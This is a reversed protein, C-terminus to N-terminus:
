DGWPRVFLHVTGADDFGMRRYTWKAWEEDAAEVFVLSAGGRRAALVAEAIVANGLGRGGARALAEAETIKAVDGRTRLMCYASVDSGIAAGFARPAVGDAELEGAALVEAGVDHDRHEHMVAESRAGRVEEIGLERVSSADVPRNRIRRQVMIATRRLLWGAASFGPAVREAIAPDLVRVARHPLGAQLADAWSMLAYADVESEVADVRLLNLDVARPFDDRFIAAGWPMTEVRTALSEDLERQFDLARSRFDPPLQAGLPARPPDTM